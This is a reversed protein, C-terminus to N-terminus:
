VLTWRNLLVEPVSAIRRTIFLNWRRSLHGARAGGFLSAVVNKGYNFSIKDIHPVSVVQNLARPRYVVRLPFFWRLWLCPIKGLGRLMYGIQSAISPVKRHCITEMWPVKQNNNGTHIGYSIYTCKMMNENKKTM